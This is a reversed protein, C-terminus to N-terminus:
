LYFPNQVLKPNANLEDRHIPLYWSRPDIIRSRIQSREGVTRSLVVRSILFEPNNENTAVRVLDFWRKGEMALEMAREKTILEMFLAVDTNGDINDYPALQARKRVENLLVVAEEKETTGLHALAEARLLMIDALRYLIFNPDNTPREINNTNIGRYKWYVRAGADIYTNNKGRVADLEGNFYDYLVNSMNFNSSVAKISNNELLLYNYQVELISESTNKQSFISFWNSGPVLSYLSTNDIVKKAANASEQYKARWLYVDAQLANVAGKTVRGRTEENKLYQVPIDNEAIALDAEIQDLISDATSKPLLYNVADSSPADLMLPVEKFTRVLYFYSLARLYLAEAVIAKSEEVSFRSDLSPINPVAEIIINARGILAYPERWVSAPRIIDFLQFYPYTIDNNITPSILDARYEGWNLFKESCAQLGDYAGVIAANADAETRFFDQRTLSNEPVQDLFKKCGSGIFAISLLCLAALWHKNIYNMKTKM